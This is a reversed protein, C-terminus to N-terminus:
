WGGAADPEEMPAVPHEPREVGVLDEDAHEGVGAAVPHRPCRDGQPHQGFRALVAEGVGLHELRLGTTSASVGGRTAGAGSSGPPHTRRHVEAAVPLAAVVVADEALRQPKPHPPHLLEGASGGPLETHSEGVDPSITSGSMIRWM